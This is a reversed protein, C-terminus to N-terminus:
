VQNGLYYAKFNYLENCRSGFDWDVWGTEGRGFDAYLKAGYKLMLNDVFQNYRTRVETQKKIVELYGQERKNIWSIVHTTIEKYIEKISQCGELEASAIAYQENILSQLEEVTIDMPKTFRVYKDNTIIYPYFSPVEHLEHSLEDRTM